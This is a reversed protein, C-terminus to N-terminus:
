RTIKEYEKVAQTLKENPEADLADLFIKATKNSLSFRHEREIVEKADSNVTTLIYSALSLGRARAAREFLRKERTSIRLDIRATKKEEKRLM